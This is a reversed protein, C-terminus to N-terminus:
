FVYQLRLSFVNDKRDGEYGYETIKGNADMRNKLKDTTENKVINYYVTLKLEQYVLWLFGFGLNTMAIEGKSDIHNGSIETNPNYWDYKVVATFPTKGLGQTLLVYGGSIKRMYVPEVSEMAVYKFGYAGNANGPHKGAIYEGKLQTCGATTNMRFQADFGIYQRKAYKGINKETRSDLVFVNDKVTYVANDRQLVGGLYTSLGGSVTMRYGFEGTATLHAVFDMRSDIPPRIGNGAFLGSELKLIHWPSTEAAQLTLMAGLDCEEPFLSQIIRARELSENRSASYAVEHGFPPEFIGAKLMNTGFWPDKMKLFADIVNIGKETINTQFATQVWRDEFSFRMRGRRIGFRGFSKLETQEYPNAKGALKFNYGDVDTEAYQYQVQMYGSVNLKRDKVVLSDPYQRKQDQRKIEHLGAGQVQLVSCFLWVIYVIRINM